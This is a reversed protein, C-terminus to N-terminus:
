KEVEQELVRLYDDLQLPASGAVFQFASNYRNVIDIGGDILEKLDPLPWDKVFGARRSGACEPDIHMVIKHRWKTLLSVLRKDEQCSSGKCFEQDKAFQDRDPNWRQAVWEDLRPRDAYRSRFGREQFLEWNTDVTQLFTKLTVAKGKEVFVRCLHVFAGNLHAERTFEWFTRARHIAKGFRSWNKNLGIGIHYHANAKFLAVRLAEIQM